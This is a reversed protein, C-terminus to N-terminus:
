EAEGQSLTDAAPNMSPDKWDVGRQPTESLGVVTFSLGGSFLLGRRAGEIRGSAADPSSPIFPHTLKREHHAQRVM